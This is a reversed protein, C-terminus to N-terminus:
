RTFVQMLHRIEDELEEPGAVTEGIVERILGRYRRRFRSVLSKLTGVPVGMEGAVVAYAPTEDADSHLRNLRQYLEQQGSREYEARQRRAAEELVVTAWRREFARAPTDTEAPELASRENGELSDLSFITQHGGRKIAHAAKWEDVLFNQLSSLLFTRFRGRSQNAHKISERELFKLFFQQTVDGANDASQGQRRLYSYLPSWYLRCLRELAAAASASQNDGAKVVDSWATTQFAVAGRFGSGTEGCMEPRPIYKEDAM